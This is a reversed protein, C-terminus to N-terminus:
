GSEADGLGTRREVEELVRDGERFLWDDIKVRGTRGEAQWHAYAIGKADWLRKDLSTIAEYPVRTGDAARLEREEAVLRRRAQFACTGLIAIALGWALALQIWQTLMSLESKPPGPKKGPDWGRARAYEAYGDYAGYNPDAVYPRWGKPDGDEDFYGSEGAGEYHHYAAYMRNHKPYRIMGDYVCWGGYGVLVAAM